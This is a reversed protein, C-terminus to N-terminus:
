MTKKIRGQSLSWPDLMGCPRIVYPVGAARCASAGWHVIHQWLGHGHVLDIGDFRRSLAAIAGEAKNFPGSGPGAAEVEVGASALRDAVEEVRGPDDAAIIAVEHGRSVQVPALRALVNAPGGSVPDISNILHVIRM